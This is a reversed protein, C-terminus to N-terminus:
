EMAGGLRMWADRRMASGAPRGGLKAQASNDNAMRVLSRQQPPPARCLCSSIPTLPPTAALLRVATITLWGYAAEM